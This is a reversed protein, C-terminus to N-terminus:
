DLGPPNGQIVIQAWEDNKNSPPLTNLGSINPISSALKNCTTLVVFLAGSIGECCEKSNRYCRAICIYIYIYEQLKEENESGGWGLFFFYLHLFIGRDICTYVRSKPSRLYVRKSGGGGM